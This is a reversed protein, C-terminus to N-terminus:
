AQMKILFNLIETAEEENIKSVINLETNCIIPDINELLELGKPTIYLHVKRRNEACVNRTVLKKILLRDVIRTTNSMQHIMHQNLYGMSAPKGKCGRLIRLVNFQQISLGFTQLPEGLYTTVYQSSIMMQVVLKRALAQNM